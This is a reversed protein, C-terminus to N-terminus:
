CADPLPPHNIPSYLTDAISYNHGLQSIWEGSKYGCKMVEGSMFVWYSAGMLHTGDKPRNDLPCLWDGVEILVLNYLDEGNNKLIARNHLKGNKYIKINTSSESWEYDPGESIADYEAQACEKADKLASEYSDFSQRGTYGEYEVEWKDSM